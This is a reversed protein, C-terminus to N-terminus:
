RPETEGEDFRSRVANMRRALDEESVLGRSLMTHALAL